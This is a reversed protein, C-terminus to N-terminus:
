HGLPARLFWEASPLDTIASLLQRPYRTRNQAAPILGSVQGRPQDWVGFICPGVRISLDGGDGRADPHPISAGFGLTTPNIKRPLDRGVESITAWGPV